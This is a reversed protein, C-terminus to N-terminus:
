RAARAALTDAHLRLSEIVDGEPDGVALRDGREALAVEAHVHDRLLRVERQEAAVRPAALQREEVGFARALPAHELVDRQADGVEGRRAGRQGVARRVDEVDSFPDEHREDLRPGVDLVVEVVDREARRRGLRRGLLVLAVAERGGARPADLDAAREDLEM